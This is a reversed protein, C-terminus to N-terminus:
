RRSNAARREPDLHQVVDQCITNLMAPTVPKTRAEDVLARYQTSSEVKVIEQANRERWLDYDAKTQRAIEPHGRDCQYKQVLFALVSPEAKQGSAPPAGKIGAGPTEPANPVAVSSATAAGECPKQQYTIRGQADQCKFIAGGATQAVAVACLAAMGLLAGHRSNAM